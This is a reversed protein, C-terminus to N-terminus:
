IVFKENRGNSVLRQGTHSVRYKGGVLLTQALTINKCRDTMRNVPSLPYAEWCTHCTMHGADLPPPQSGLM